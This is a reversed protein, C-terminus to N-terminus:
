LCFPILVRYGQTCKDLCEKDGGCVLRQAREGGSSAGSSAGRTTAANAVGFGALMAGALAAIFLHRSGFM